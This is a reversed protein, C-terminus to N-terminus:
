KILPMRKYFTYIPKGRQFEFGLYFPLIKGFNEIIKNNYKEYDPILKHLNKEIEKTQFDIIKFYFKIRKLNDNKMEFLIISLNKFIKRPIKELLYEKKIQNFIKKTSCGKKLYFKKNNNKGSMQIMPEFGYGLFKKILYIPPIKKMSFFDVKVWKNNIRKFEMGSQFKENLPMFNFIFDISSRKKNFSIDFFESVSYVFELEKFIDKPNSINFTKQIKNRISGISPIELCSPNQLVYEKWYGECRKHYRCGECKKIKIRGITARSNEVDKNIFDAALHTTKFTEKEMTESIQSHYKEGVFCLPYYRVHWHPIKNIRGFELLENVYISVEEYTPVIKRFDKHPGGRTPDVFIFESNRIGLSYILKGIEMLRNYNQKTITTNSGIENLGLEKVNKIGKLLQNFSGPVKTLKDHLKSNHGHISFIISNVGLDIIKKAFKRNSLMRGNTAFMITKFDLKKAFSIIEFIDKRITPEGGILELYESGMKRSEIMDRKIKETPQDEIIGRKDENCCFICKNNCSYGM